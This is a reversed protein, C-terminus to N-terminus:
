RNLRTIIRWNNLAQERDLDKEEESLEGFRKGIQIELNGAYDKTIILDGEQLTVPDGKCHKKCNRHLHSQWDAWRKHEEAAMEEFREQEQRTLKGLDALTDIRTIRGIMREEAALKSTALVGDYHFAEVLIGADDCIQKFRDFIKRRMLLICDPAEDVLFGKLEADYYPEECIAGGCDLQAGYGIHISWMKMQHPEGKVSPDSDLKDEDLLSLSGYEEIGAFLERPAGSDSMFLFDIMKKRIVVPATIVVIKEAM